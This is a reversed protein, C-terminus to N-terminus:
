MMDRRFNETLDKLTNALKALEVVMKAHEPHLPSYYVHMKAMTEIFRDLNNQAQDYHRILTDRSKSPM